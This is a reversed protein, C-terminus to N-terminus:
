QMMFTKPDELHFDVLELIKANYIPKSYTPVSDLYKTIRALKDSTTSSMAIIPLKPFVSKLQQITKVGVEYGQAFQDKFNEDSTFPMHLDCVVLDFDENHLIEIAEVSCSAEWIDYGADSLINATIERYDECDDILLISRM